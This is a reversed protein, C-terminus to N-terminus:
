TWIGAFAFWTMGAVFYSYKYIDATFGLYLNQCVRELDGRCCFYFIKSRRCHFRPLSRPLRAGFREQLLLVINSRTRQSDWTWMGAFASWIAGAVFSSYKHAAASFGRLDLVRCVRELDGRCCSFFIQSRHRLFGPGSEPLRTGSRGQLLISYKHAAATFGLDLNRCFRELDGRCVLSSYKYADTTFGLDLNRCVRELDGRCCLDFM